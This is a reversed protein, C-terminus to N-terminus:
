SVLYSDDMAGMLSKGTSMMDRFSLTFLFGSCLLITVVLPFPPYCEIDDNLCDVESSVGKKRSVNNDKVKKERKKTSPAM